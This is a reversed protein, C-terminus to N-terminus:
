LSPLHTKSKLPRMRLDKFYVEAGESQLQIKGRVLPEGSETKSSEVKLVVQGNIVHIAQGEFAYLDVRYWGDETPEPVPKSKVRSSSETPVGNADWIGNSDVKVVSSPGGLQILDGESGEKFQVQVSSMYANWFTGHEGHCHYLIGSNRAKERNPEWKAEGWKVLATLHYNEFIEKSTLAAFVQGSVKLVPEGGKSSEVSFVSFPDGDGAPPGSKGDESSQIGEPIGEVSAHPSGTWVDWRSLETDLLHTWPSELFDIEQFDAVNPIWIENVFRVHDSHVNYADYDAQSEFRMSLGHKFVNKPSLEDLWQFDIVGPIDALAMSEEYFRHIEITEPEEKLKFFVTHVIPSAQLTMTMVFLLATIINRLTM